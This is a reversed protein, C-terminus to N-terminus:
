ITTDTGDEKKILVDEIRNNDIYQVRWYQTTGYDEILKILKAEGVPVRNKSFGVYIMVIDGIKM